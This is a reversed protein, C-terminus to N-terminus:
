VPVEQLVCFEQPILMELINPESQPSDTKTARSLSKSSGKGSTKVGKNAHSKSTSAGSVLQEKHLDKREVCGDIQKPSDVGGTKSDNPKSGQSITNESNGVETPKTGDDSKESNNTSKDGGSQKALDDLSSQPKDIDQSITNESNDLKNGDSGENRPVEKSSTEPQADIVSQEATSTNGEDPKTDVETSTSEPADTQQSLDIPKESNNTSKDGGSQKALDDVSSQSKDTDQSITNESNDLKNGDSGENRPVEKSSTEPQADIVSQEATSANGEDPKTPIGTSSTQPKQTDANSHGGDPKKSLDSESGKINKTNNESEQVEAEVQESEPKKHLDSSSSESDKVKKTDKESEQVETGVQESGNLHDEDPKKHLDSSSSESDHIDIIDHCPIAPQKGKGSRKKSSKGKGSPEEEDSKQEEKIKVQKSDNGHDKKEKKSTKVGKKKAGAKSKAEHGSDEQDSQLEEKM